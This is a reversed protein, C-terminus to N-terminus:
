RPNAMFNQSAIKVKQAHHSLPFQGEPIAAPPEDGEKLNSEGIPVGGCSQGAAVRNYAADEM